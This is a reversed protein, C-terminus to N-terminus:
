LKKQIVLSLTKVKNIYPCYTATMLGDAAKVSCEGHVIRRAHLEFTIVLDFTDDNQLKHTICQIHVSASVHLGKKVIRRVLNYGRPMLYLCIDVMLMIFQQCQELFCSSYRQEIQEVLRREPTGDIRFGTM